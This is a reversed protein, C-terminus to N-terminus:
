GKSGWLLCDIKKVNSIGVYSPLAEDFAKVYSACQASGMFKRYFEQLQQYGLCAADLRADAARFRALDPLGLKARDNLLGVVRSDWIPQSTDLTALMKSVFSAEVRGCREYCRRLLTSFDCAGEVRVEQFLAYFESQWIESRRVAYLANFTRKFEDSTALDVSPDNALAIIRQYKALGYYTALASELARQPVHWEISDPSLAAM